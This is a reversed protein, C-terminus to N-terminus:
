MFNILFIWEFDTRNGDQLTGSSERNLRVRRPLLVRNEKQSAM